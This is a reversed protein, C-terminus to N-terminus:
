SLMNRLSPLTAVRDRSRSRDREGDTSRDRARRKLTDGKGLEGKTAVPGRGGDADYSLSRAHLDASLAPPAAAPPGRDYRDYPREDYRDYRMAASPPPPYEIEAMHTPSSSFAPNIQPLTDRARPESPLNVPRTIALKALEPPLHQPPQIAPPPPSLSRKWETGAASSSAGHPPHSHPHPLPPPPPPPPFSQSQSSQPRQSVQSQQSHPRPQGWSWSSPPRTSRSYDSGSSKQRASEGSRSKTSRNRVFYSDPGPGDSSPPPSFPLATFSFPSQRHLPFHASTSPRSRDRDRDAGRSSEPRDWYGPAGGSSGLRDPPPGGWYSHTSSGTLPPSQFGAPNHYYSSSAVGTHRFPGYAAESTSPRMHQPAYDSGHRSAFSPERATAPPPPYGVRCTLLVGVAPM